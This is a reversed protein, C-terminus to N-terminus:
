RIHNLMTQKSNRKFTDYNQINRVDVPLSNWAKSGKFLISREFSANQSQYEIFVPAEYMRLPRNPTQIYDPVYKRKYMFNLLHCDRRNNLLPTVAEHHLDWVNHRSDRSLVLRLARNQLKQLM